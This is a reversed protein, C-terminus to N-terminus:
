NQRSGPVTESGTGVFHGGDDFGLVIGGFDLLESAMLLHVEVHSLVGFVKVVNM